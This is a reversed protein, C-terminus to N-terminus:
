GIKETYKKLSKKYNLFSGVLKLWLIVRGRRDKKAFISYKDSKINRYGGPSSHFKLFELSRPTFDLKRVTKVEFSFITL